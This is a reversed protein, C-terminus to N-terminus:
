GNRTTEPTRREHRDVTAINAGAARMEDLARQSDGAQVDIGTIADPFVTVHFGHKVADLVTEKVCYDTAIGGVFLQDIGRARLDDSLPRGHATHGDFASYGERDGVDGKSVVTADPPLELAPHFAAGASGQVCHPPWRGGFEKFHTTQAPHWDRSAYIAMGQARADAIHRNLAPVIANGGPAPLAGGPCFDNQVDVILLARRSM